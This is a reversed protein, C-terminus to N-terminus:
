RVPDDSRLNHVIVSPIAEGEIVLPQPKSRHEIVLALANALVDCLAGNLGDLPDSKTTVESREVYHGALKGVEILTARVEKTDARAKSIALNRQHEAMLWAMSGPEHEAVPEALATEMAEAQATAEAELEAIRAKVEDQQMLRHARQRPNKTDFKAFRVADAGSLKMVAIGKAFAEWQANNLAPM